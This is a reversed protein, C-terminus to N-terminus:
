LGAPAPANRCGYAGLRQGVRQDRGIVRAPKEFLVARKKAGRVLVHRAEHPSILIGEDIEDIQLGVLVFEVHNRYGGLHNLCVKTTPPPPEGIVGTIRVRRVWTGPEVDHWQEGGDNSLAYQIRGSIGWYDRVQLRASAVAKWARPHQM